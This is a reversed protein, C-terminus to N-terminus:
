NKRAKLELTLIRNELEVIKLAHQAFIESIQIFNYQIKENIEEQRKNKFM